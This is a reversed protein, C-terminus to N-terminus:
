RRSDRRGRRGAREQARGARNVYDPDGEEALRVADPVPVVYSDMIERDSVAKAAAMRRAKLEPKRAEDPTLEEIRPAMADIDDQTIADYAERGVQSQAGGRIEQKYVAQERAMQREDSPRAFPVVEAADPAVVVGGREEMYAENEKALEERREEQFEPDHMRDLQEQAEQFGVVRQEQNAERQEQAEKEAKTQRRESQKTAM